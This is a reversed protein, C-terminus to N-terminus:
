QQLTWLWFLHSIFISTTHVGCMWGTHSYRYMTNYKNNEKSNITGQLLDKERGGGGNHAQCFGRFRCMRM